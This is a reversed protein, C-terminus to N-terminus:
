DALSSMTKQTEAIEMKVTKWEERINPPYGVSFQSRGGTVNGVRLCLISDQACIQSAVIMGRGTMAYVTGGCQIGCNSIVGAIVSAGADIKACEISPEQVQAAATIFTKGETGSIGQRVHITGETSIIRAQGVKGDIVIDGTAKVSAGGDVNGGIYLSGTVQVAGQSQDLGGDIVKQEHICFQDNEIYLIGDVAAILTQGGEGTTVNKGHSLHASAVPFIHCCGLPFQHPITEELVGCVIGEYYMDELFTEPTLAEGGNEPPLLCAYAAMRDQSLFFKPEANLPGSTELSRKRRLGRAEKIARVFDDVTKSDEPYQERIEAASMDLESNAKMGSARQSTEGGKGGTEKSFLRDFISIKM